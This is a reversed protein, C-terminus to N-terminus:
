KKPVAGNRVIVGTDNNISDSTSLNYKMYLQLVIYKYALEANENQALAKEAQALATQRRSKALELAMKDLDSITEVPVAPTTTVEAKM